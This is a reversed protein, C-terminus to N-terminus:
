LQLCCFGSESLIRTEWSSYSSTKKFFCCLEFKERRTKPSMLLLRINPLAAWLTPSPPQGRLHPCSHTSVTIPCPSPAQSKLPCPARAMPNLSSLPAEPLGGSGGAWQALILKSGAASPDLVSDSQRLSVQAWYVLAWVLDLGLGTGM